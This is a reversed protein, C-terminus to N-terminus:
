GQSQVTGACQGTVRTAKNVIIM